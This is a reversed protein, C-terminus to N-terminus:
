PTMSQPNVAVGALRDKPLTATPRDEVRGSVILLVPAVVWVTETPFIPPAPNETVPMMKGKIKAPPWLKVKATVNAGEDAPAALPLMRAVLGFSGDRVIVKDPEPRSWVPRNVTSGADILKPLM